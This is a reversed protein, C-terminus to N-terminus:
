VDAGSSLRSFSSDVGEGVVFEFVEEEIARRHVELGV